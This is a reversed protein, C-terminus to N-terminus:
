LILWNALFSRLVNDEFGQSLYSAGSQVYELSFRRRLEGQLLGGQLRRHSAGEQLEERVEEEDARVRADVTPRPQRRPLVADVRQPARPLEEHGGTM